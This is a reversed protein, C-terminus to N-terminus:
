AFYTSLLLFKELLNLSIHWIFDEEVLEHGGNNNEDNDNEVM